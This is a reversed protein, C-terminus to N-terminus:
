KSFLQQILKLLYSEDYPKQLFPVKKRSIIENVDANGTFGSIIIAKLNPNLAYMKELLEPGNMHPMLMDVLVLDINLYDNKFINFADLGNHAALTTYGVDNLLECALSCLLVEDDVVLIKKNVFLQTKIESSISIASSKKESLPFYIFFETFSKEVSKVKICGHHSMVTGYVAALGLGTGKGKEKTTFFPEFIHTLLEQPIGCGTDKVSVGIYKGPKLLSFEFVCEEKILEKTITSFYLDGGLPMADRANIALNL